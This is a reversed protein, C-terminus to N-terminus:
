PPSRHLDPSPRARPLQLLLARALSPPLEDTSTYTYSKSSSIALSHGGEPRAERFRRGGSQPIRMDASCIDGIAHPSCPHTTTSSSPSAQSRPGRISIPGKGRSRVSAGQPLAERSDCSRRMVRGPRGTGGQHNGSSRPATGSNSCRSPRSRSITLPAWHPRSSGPRTSRLVVALSHLSAAVDPHVETGYLAAKISLSHEFRERAGVLDGQALLVM